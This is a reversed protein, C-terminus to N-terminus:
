RALEGRSMSSCRVPATLERLCYVVTRARENLSRVFREASAWRSDEPWTAFLTILRRTQKRCVMTEGSACDTREVWLTALRSCDETVCRTLRLPTALRRSEAACYLAAEREDWSAIEAEIRRLRRWGRGRSAEVIWHKRM